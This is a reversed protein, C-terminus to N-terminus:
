LKLVWGLVAFALAVVAFICFLTAARIISDSNMM